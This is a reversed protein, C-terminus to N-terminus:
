YIRKNDIIKKWGDELINIGYGITYIYVLINYAMDTVDFDLNMASGHAISNRKDAYGNLKNIIRKLDDDLRNLYKAVDSSKAALRKRNQSFSRLENFEETTKLVTRAYREFIFKDHIISVFNEYASFYSLAAMKYDDNKYNIAADILYEIWAPNTANSTLGWFRAKVYMKNDLLIDYDENVGQFSGILSFQGTFRNYDHLSLNLNSDNFSSILTILEYDSEKSVDIGYEDIDLGTLRTFGAIRGDFIVGFSNSDSTVDGIKRSYSCEIVKKCIHILPFTTEILLLPNVKLVDRIIEENSNESGVSKDWRHKKFYYGLPFKERQNFWLKKIKTKVQM